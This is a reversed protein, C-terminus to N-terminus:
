KEFDIVAGIAELCDSGLLLGLSAVPVVSVWILVLVENLVTPLRWKEYSPTM